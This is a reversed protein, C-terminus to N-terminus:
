LFCWGQAAAALATGGGPTRHVDGTLIDVVVPHRFYRQCIHEGAVGIRLRGVGQPLQAPGPKFVAVGIPHRHLGEMGRRVSPIELPRLGPAAIHAGLPLTFRPDDFGGEQHRHFPGLLSIQELSRIIHQELDPHKGPIVPLLIKGAAAHLPQVGAVIGNITIRQRFVAIGLQGEAGILHRPTKM